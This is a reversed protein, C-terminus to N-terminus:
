KATIVFQIGEWVADDPTGGNFGISVGDTISFAIDINETTADITVPESLKQSGYLAFDDNFSNSLSGSSNIMYLDSVISVGAQTVTYGLETNKHNDQDDVLGITEVSAVANSPDNSCSMISPPNNDWSRGDTYCFKGQGGRDDTRAESFEILSKVSTVNSVVIYAHSYTGEDITIGDILNNVSGVSVNFEKGNASSFLATCTIKNVPSSASTCLGFEYLRLNLEEPTQFCYGDFGNAADLGRHTAETSTSTCATGALTESAFIISFCSVFIISCFIKSFRLQKFNM